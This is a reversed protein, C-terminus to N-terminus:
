DLSDRRLLSFKPRFPCFNGLTWGVNKIRPATATVNGFENVPGRTKYHEFPDYM